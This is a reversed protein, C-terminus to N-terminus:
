AYVLLHIHKVSLQLLYNHKVMFLSDVHAGIPLMECFMTLIFGRNVRPNSVRYLSYEPKTKEEVSRM